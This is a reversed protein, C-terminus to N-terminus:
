KDMEIQEERRNVILSAFVESIFYFHVLKRDDAANASTGIPGAGWNHLKVSGVSDEPKLDINLVARVHM